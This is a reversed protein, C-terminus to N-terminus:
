FIMYFALGSVGIWFMVCLLIIMLWIACIPLENLMENIKQLAHFKINKQNFNFRANKHRIKEGDSINTTRTERKM